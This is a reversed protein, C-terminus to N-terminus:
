CGKEEVLEKSYVAVILGDNFGFAIGEFKSYFDVKRNENLYKGLYDSLLIEIDEWRAAYKFKFRKGMSCVNDKTWNTTGYEFDLCGIMEVEWEGKGLDHVEVSIAKIEKKAKLDGCEDLWLFFEEELKRDKVDTIFKKILILLCWPLALVIIGAFIYGIIMLFSGLALAPLILVGIANIITQKVNKVRGSPMKPQRSGNLEAMDCQYKFNIKKLNNSAQKYLHLNWIVWGIVGLGIVIFPCGLILANQIDYVVLMLVLIITAILSSGILIVWFLIPPAFAQEMQKVWRFRDENYKSALDNQSIMKELKKSDFESLMKYTLIQRTVTNMFLIKDLSALYMAFLYVLRLEDGDKADMYFQYDCKYFTSEVINKENVPFDKDKEIEEVGYACVSVNRNEDYVKLNIGKSDMKISMKVNTKYMKCFSTIGKLDIKKFNAVCFKFKM